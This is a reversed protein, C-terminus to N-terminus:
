RMNEENMEAAIGAAVQLAAAYARAISPHVSGIGTGAWKVTAAWVDSSTM